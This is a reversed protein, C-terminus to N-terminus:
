QSFSQFTLPSSLQDKLYTLNGMKYKDRVMARPNLCRIVFELFGLKQPLLSVGWM